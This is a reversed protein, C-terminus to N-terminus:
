FRFTSKVLYGLTGFSETGVGGYRASSGTLQGFPRSLYFLAPTISINDTVQFRYWLEMLMNGDDPTDGGKQATLWQAGGIGFGLGNGEAFADDWQLGAM